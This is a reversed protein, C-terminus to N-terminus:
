YIHVQKTPHVIQKLWKLNIKFNQNVIFDDESKRKELSKQSPVWMVCKM